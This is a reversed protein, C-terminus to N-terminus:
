KRYIIKRVTEYALGFKQSIKEISEGNQYMDKMKRNRTDYYNKSGSKEGWVKHSDGGIPVYLLEGNIYRQIEIILTQPLVEAANVYKM